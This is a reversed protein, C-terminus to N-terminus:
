SKCNPVNVCSFSRQAGIRIDLMHDRTYLCRRTGPSVRVMTSEFLEFRERTSKLHVHLSRPSSTPPARHVLAVLLGGERNYGNERRLNLSKKEMDHRARWGNVM